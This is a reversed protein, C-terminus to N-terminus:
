GRSHLLSSYEHHIETGGVTGKTYIYKVKGQWDFFGYVSYHGDGDTTGFRNNCLTISMMGNRWVCQVGVVPVQLRYM